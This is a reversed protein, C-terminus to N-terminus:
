LAIEVGVEHFPLDFNGWVILRHFQLVLWMALVLLEPLIAALIYYPPQYLM